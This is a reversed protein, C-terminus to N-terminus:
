RNSHNSKNNRAWVTRRDCSPCYKVRGHHAWFQKNCNACEKLHKSGEQSNIIGFLQFYCLDLLDCYSSLKLLPSDITYNSDVFPSSVKLFCAHSLIRDFLTQFICCSLFKASKYNNGIQGIIMNAQEITDIPFFHEINISLGEEGTPTRYKSKLIPAKILSLILSKMNEIDDNLMTIWLEFMLHITVLDNCLQYYDICIYNEIKIRKNKSSSPMGYRHCWKLLDKKNISKTINDWDTKKDRNIVKILSIVCNKDNSFDKTLAKQKLAHSLSLRRLYPRSEYEFIDYEYGPMPGYYQSNTLQGINFLLENDYFNMNM